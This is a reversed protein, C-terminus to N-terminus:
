KSKTNLNIMLEALKKTSIMYMVNEDLQQLLLM